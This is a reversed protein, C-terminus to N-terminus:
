SGLEADAAYLRPDGPLIGAALLARDVEHEQDADRRSKDRADSPAAGAREVMARVQTWSQGTGEGRVRGTPGEVYVVYPSGPVEYDRWAETSMVVDVGPPALGAIVDGSEAEPGQTVILLRAAVPRGPEALETWFTECSSCGSSLFLLVTDNERGVVRVGVAEGDPARGSVDHAASWEARPTPAPLSEEPAPQMRFGDAGHEAPTLEHLRRLVTGYARLLGAVLVTLVVLVATELGVLITM